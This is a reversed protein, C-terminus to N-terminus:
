DKDRMMGLVMSLPRDKWARCAQALVKGAAPNHGGDLWLEWEPPLLDVLPGQTLRHLRAPWRATTLGLALAEPPLSFGSLREAAALALAANRVQHAGILAPLPLELSGTAGEFVMGRPTTRAFWDRGEKWTPAGMELSRLEIVRDAKREQKAMVCGVGPKLIHSKEAAIAELREGLYEQHDLAIPTLITLAPRKIVNTADLRGGLGTELLTVDAPTRSMALFAAASTAEFFTIPQRANRVEVEELVEALALDSIDQGALRIRENFRVLHPSTYVHVRLGAAELMARLFAITSGKGNTGAVHITPPLSDQPNGLDGLLRSIRTLSLDIVQPHLRELRSLAATARSGPM